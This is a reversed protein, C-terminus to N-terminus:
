RGRRDHCSRRSRPHLSKVHSLSHEIVEMVMVAAQEGLHELMMQAAWIAGVPNAIGQGAIDSCLRAGARVPFPFAREPQHQGVTRHRHDRHLCPGLDSLIDGFLEFVVLVDFRSPNARVPRDARGHPIPRDEGGSLEQGDPSANRGLLADFHRHWQIQDGLHSTM